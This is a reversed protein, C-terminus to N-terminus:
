TRKAIIEHALKEDEQMQLILDDVSSFRLEDRMKEIFSIKISQNYINKDFEFIHVEVSWKKDEFTPNDGINLMGGYTKGGYYVEVAYVGNAPILKYASNVQVNATPYGIENGRKNGHVVEGELTYDRGMLQSAGAVKGNLLHKRIKTSSVISSEIDQAPIEELEFQYKVAFREMDKLSGARNKGFRHDYGIVLKQVQLKNVLIRSVFDEPGMSALARDFPMVVLHDIGLAEVLAIKEDLTNLLKLDNDEPYLVLRPHPYFTLLVSEGKRQRAQEVVYSLIQQHGFHVGDFTGQTLVVPGKPTFRDLDHHVKM